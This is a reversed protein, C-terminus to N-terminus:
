PHSIVQQQLQIITVGPYNFAARLDTALQELSSPKCARCGFSRALAVYDPNKPSVGIPAIGLAVMDDRIQGLSQNDWLLVVLASSLEEAATALEQITYLIGGDGVIVLGPRESAACKAGIAAPLAYGLTGYGTPHFWSRPQATPFTFNGTYALQTMDTSVFGNDPLEREITSLVQQHIRQLPDLQATIQARLEAIELESNSDRTVLTEALVQNLAILCHSADGVIAVKAPYNDDMKAPDIDIRILDGEIPLRERWMDTESLETGIAIVLDAESIYQWSPAVCLTAGAYLPHDVSLLGKAAVTSFVPAQLKEALQQIQARAKLAGGGAIIIPRKARSLLEVSETILECHNAAVTAPLPKVAQWDDDVQASLVDLPVEIFVPRPRQSSFINFAQAILGPLQEPSYATASLATIPAMIARQDQTEHLEGRGKGLSERNNVSSIVLMAISDSYAQGVATAVNTVGPGTITFCVGPKGTIRAYGDAMFGAGQEHRTLVHQISSGTLGQYLDLTHVGPIGFVTDVAYEELLNILAQGCTTKNNTNTPM